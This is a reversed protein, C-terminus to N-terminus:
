PEGFVQRSETPCTQVTSEYTRRSFLNERLAAFIAL